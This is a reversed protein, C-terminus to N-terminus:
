YRLKQFGSIPKESFIDQGTGFRLGGFDIFLYERNGQIGPTTELATLVFGLARGSRVDIEIDVFKGKAGSRDSVFTDSLSRLSLTIPTRRKSFGVADGSPGYAAESAKEESWACVFTEAPVMANLCWQRCQELDRSLLLPSSSSGTSQLFGTPVVYYKEEVTNVKSKVASTARMSVYGSGQSFVFDVLDSGPVLHKLSSVAQGAVSGAIIGSHNRILKSILFPFVVLDTEGSSTNLLLNVVRGLKQQGGSTLVEKGYLESFSPM